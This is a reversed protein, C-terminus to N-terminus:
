FGIEFTYGGIAVVEVTAPTMKKMEVAFPPMTLGDELTFMTLVVGSQKLVM